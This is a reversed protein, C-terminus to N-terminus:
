NIVLSLILASLRIGAAKVEKYNLMVEFDRRGIQVQVMGGSELFGEFVAVTMIKNKNFKSIELKLIKESGRAIYIAKCKTIDGQNRDLNISKNSQILIINSIEDSGFTCIQGTRTMSASNILDRIFTAYAQVEADDMAKSQYSVFVSLFLALIIKYKHSFLPM